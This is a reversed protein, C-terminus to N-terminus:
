GQLIPGLLGNRLFPLIPFRTDPPGGFTILESNINVSSKGSISIRCVNTSGEAVSLM